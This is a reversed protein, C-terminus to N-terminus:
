IVNGPLGTDGLDCACGVFGRSEQPCIQFSFIGIEPFSCILANNTRLQLMSSRDPIGVGLVVYILDFNHLYPLENPGQYNGM